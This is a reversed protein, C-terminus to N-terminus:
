NRIGADRAEGNGRSHREGYNGTDDYDWYYSYLNSYSDGTKWGVASVAVWACSLLLFTKM